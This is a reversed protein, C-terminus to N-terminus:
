QKLRRFDVGLSPLAVPMKGFGEVEVEGVAKALTSNVCLLWVQAGDKFARVAVTPNSVSVKPPKQASLLTKEHSRIESAVKVLSEWNTELDSEPSNKFIQHASYWLLGNAGGAIGLWSMARLEEYTPYRDKDPNGRKACWDWAFAQPVQWVPRTSYTRRRSEIPYTHCISIPQRRYGIPYPDASIIDFAGMFAEANFPEALVAFTPHDPDVKEYMSQLARRNGVAIVPTEDIVYWALLAPHSRLKKACSEAWNVNLPSKPIVKLGASHFKDLMVPTAGCEIVCNFPGGKLRELFKVEKDLPHVYVGLAYFPKGDVIMRQAADFRVKRPSPGKLRTFSTECKGLVSDGQCFVAKVPHTGEAIDKVDVEIGVYDDNVIDAPLTNEGEAGKFTFFASLTRKPYKSRSAAYPMVFRVKGSDAENRYSSSYVAVVPAFASCRVEFDDLLVRGLTSNYIRICLDGKVADSPLRQTQATIALWDVAGMEKYLAPRAQCRGLMNGDSDYWRFFVYGCNNTVAGKVKLSVSYSRGPEVSFERVFDVEASPPASRVVNDLEQSAPARASRCVSEEWLLCRSGGVGEAGVISFGPVKKWSKIAGSEEFGDKWVVTDNSPIQASFGCSALVAIGCLAVLHKKTFKM